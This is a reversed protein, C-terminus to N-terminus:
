LSLTFGNKQLVKLEDSVYEKVLFDGKNIEQYPINKKIWRTLMKYDKIFEIDKKILEGQEDYYQYSIWIRGRLIRKQEENIVTKSFQIVPSKISDMIEKNYQHMIIDGYNKKYLYIGFVDMSAPQSIIKSNNDLFVFQNQELYKIFSMQINESMYFNIQKGM